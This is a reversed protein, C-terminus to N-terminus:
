KFRGVYYYVAMQVSPLSLFTNENWTSYQLLREREWDKGHWLLRSSASM